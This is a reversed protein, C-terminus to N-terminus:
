DNMGELVADLGNVYEWQNNFLSEAEFQGEVCVCMYGFANRGVAWAYQGKLFNRRAGKLEYKIRVLRRM